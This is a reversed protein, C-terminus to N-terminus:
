LKEEPTCRGSFLVAYAERIELGLMQDVRIGRVGHHRDAVCQGHLVDAPLM